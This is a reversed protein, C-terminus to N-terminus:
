LFHILFTDLDITNIFDFMHQCGGKFLSLMDIFAVITINKEVINELKQTLRKQDFVIILQIYYFMNIVLSLLWFKETKASIQSQVSVRDIKQNIKLQQISWFKPEINYSAM